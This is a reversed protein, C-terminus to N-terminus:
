IESPSMKGSGDVDLNGLDLSFASFGSENTRLLREPTPRGSSKAETYNRRGPSGRSGTSGADSSRESSDDLHDRRRGPRKPSSGGNVAGSGGAFIYVNPMGPDNRQKLNNLFDVFSVGGNEVKSQHIIYDYEEMGYKNCIGKLANPTLIGDNRSDARLFEDNLDKFLGGNKMRGLDKYNFNYKVMGKSPNRKTFALNNNNSGTSSYRSSKGSRDSPPGSIGLITDMGKLGVLDKERLERGPSPSSSGNPSLSPLRSNNGGVRQSRNSGPSSYTMNRHGPWNGGQRVQEVGSTTSANSANSNYSNTTDQSRDSLPGGSESGNVSSGFLSGSGSYTSSRSTIAEVAERHKKMPNPGISSELRLNPYDSKRLENLFTVYPIKGGGNRDMRNLLYSANGNELGFCRLLLKISPKPIYGTRLDDVNLFALNINSFLKQLSSTLVRFLSEEVGVESANCVGGLLLSAPSVIRDRQTGDVKPLHELRPYTTIQIGKYVRGFEYRLDNQTIQPSNGGSCRLKSLIGQLNNLAPHLNAAKILLVIETTGIMGDKRGKDAQDFVVFM